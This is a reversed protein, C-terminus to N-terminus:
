PAQSPTPSPSPSAPASACDLGVKLVRHNYSDVIYASTGGLGFAVAAPGFLETQAPNNPDLNSGCSWSAEWGAVLRLKSTAAEVLWVRCFVDESILMNGAADFAVGYPSYYYAESATGGTAAQSTGSNWVGAGSSTLKYISNLGFPPTAGGIWVDASGNFALTRLTTAQVSGVNVPTSSFLPGISYVVGSGASNDDLVYLANTVPNIALGALQSTADGVTKQEISGTAGDYKYVRQGTWDTFYLNGDAAALVHYSPSQSPSLKAMDVLTTTIGTDAFV